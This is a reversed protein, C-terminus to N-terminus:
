VYLVGKLFEVTMREEARAAQVEDMIKDFMPKEALYNYGGEPTGNGHADIGNHHYVWGRPMVRMKGGMAECMYYLFSETFCNRFATPYGGYTRLFDMRCIFVYANLVPARAAEQYPPDILPLDRASDAIQCPLNPDGSNVCPFVIQLDKDAEFEKVAEQVWDSVWVIDSSTYIFYKTEPAAHTNIIVNLVKWQSEKLPFLALDYGTHDTASARQHEILHKRISDSSRADGVVLDVDPRVNLISDICDMYVWPRMRSLFGHDHVRKAIEQTTHRRYPRRNPADEGAETTPAYTPCYVLFQSPTLTPIEDM